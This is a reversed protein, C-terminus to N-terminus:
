GLTVAFSGIRILRQLTADSKRLGGEQCRGGTSCLLRAGAPLRPTLWLFLVVARRLAELASRKWYSARWSRRIKWRQFTGPIRSRSWARTLFCHGPGIGNMPARGIAIGM